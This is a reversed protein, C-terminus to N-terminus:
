RPRLILEAALRPHMEPIWHRVGRLIEFTYAGDVWSGCRRALRETVYEDGDGWAFLTPVAVRPFVAPLRMARYWNLATDLEHRRGREAYRRAHEPGLGSRLLFGEIGRALVREPLAPLQFLAIYKSRWLQTGSRAASAWAGRHPVSLATLTRVRGPHRGAVHFALAAGWDHGALDFRELGAADALAIVDGALLDLAYRRRDRPRAGPSYGRLDPALTRREHRVLDAAVGAWAARDQPFGHLLIVAPAAPDGADDVDFTLGDNTFQTIM